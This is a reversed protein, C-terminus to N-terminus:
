AENLAAAAAEAVAIDQDVTGASAGVAGAISGDIAVPLGGGFIVVKSENSHEIGFLPAGPQALEALYATTKDFLRATVAKGIALDISGILAGDQRSFAILHGGADVVAINYPLGISAAKAEGAQLMRRADELTLTAYPRPMIAGIEERYKGTARVARSDDPGEAREAGRRPALVDSTDCSSARLAYTAQNAFAHEERAADYEPHAANMLVGAGATGPTRQGRALKRYRGPTVGTARHFSRGFNSESAFGCAQAIQTISRGEALLAKALELRRQGLFKQPTQGTTAKFMRSFHFRSLAAASALEEVMIEKGLHADIYQLVRQLRRADLTRSRHSSCGHNATIGPCFLSHAATLASQTEGDSHNGFQEVLKGLDPGQYPM